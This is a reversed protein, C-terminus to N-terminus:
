WGGCAAESDLAWPPWSVTRGHRISHGRSRDGPSGGETTVWFLGDHRTNLISTLTGGLDSRTNYKKPLLTRTM